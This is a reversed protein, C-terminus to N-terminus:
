SDARYAWVGELFTDGTVAADWGLKFGFRSRGAGPRVSFGDVNEANDGGAVYICVDGAPATPRSLTGDCGANTDTTTPQTQGADGSTWTTVVIHVDDDGLPSSAPIPLSGTVGFDDSAESYVHFDGGIAGRITKGAPVRGPVVFYNETANNIDARRVAGNRIERSTIPHHAGATGLSLAVLVVATAGAFLAKAMRPRARLRPFGM